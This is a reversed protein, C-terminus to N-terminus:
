IIKRPGSGVGVAVAVGVGIGVGVGVGVGVAVGVFDDSLGDTDEFHCLCVRPLRHFGADVHAPIRVAQGGHGGADGPRERTCSRYWIGQDFLGIIRSRYVRMRVRLARQSFSRVAQIIREFGPKRFHFGEGFFHPGSLDM